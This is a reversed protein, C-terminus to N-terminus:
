NIAVKKHKNFYNKIILNTDRKTYGYRVKNSKTWRTHKQINKLAESHYLQWQEINLSNCIQKTTILDDGTLTPYKLLDMINKITMHRTISHNNTKIKFAYQKGNQPKLQEFVGNNTGRNSAWVTNTDTDIFYNGNLQPILQLNPKIIKSQKLQMKLLASPKFAYKPLTKQNPSGKIENQNLKLKVIDNKNFGINSGLGRARTISSLANQIIRVPLGTKASLDQVSLLNRKHILYNNYKLSKKSQKKIVQDPTEIPRILYQPDHSVSYRQKILGYPINFAQAFSKLTKYTKNQYTIKIKRSAKEGTETKPATLKEISRVGREYRGMIVNAPVKSTALAQTMQKISKYRVGDLTIAHGTTRDPPKILDAPNRIGSQYRRAVLHESQNFARAFVSLSPYTKNQYTIKIANSNAYNYNIKRAPKFIRPDNKGYLRIRSALTNKKLGHQTAATQTNKYAKNLLIIM